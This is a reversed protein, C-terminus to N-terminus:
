LRVENLLRHALASGSLWAAQVGGGPSFVDGALGLRLGNDFTTLIPRSLENGRDVRAYRWRHPSTWLPQNVWAGVQEAALKLLEAAWVENPLAMRQASWGPRGQIVLTIFEPSERKRSDQSILQLSASQDPYLIDWEPAPVERPYAALLTLSPVSAFMGLLAQIGVLEPQVPMTALLALTEELALAVVLDRCLFTQGAETTLAFGEADPTVQTVTTQLQVKLDAALDKAFANLGAPLIARQEEGEFANPQCPQGHGQLYRPWASPFIVGETGKVAKLFAPNQGHIFMPGFDIPQGEYRRTALRGGVGRARELVLVERGAQHLERACQLGAIGGGIVIVEQRM